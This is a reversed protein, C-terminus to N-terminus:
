TKRQKKELLTSREYSVAGITAPAPSSAGPTKSRWATPEMIGLGTRLRLLAIGKENHLCGFVFVQVNLDFRYENLKVSHRSAVEWMRQDPQGM